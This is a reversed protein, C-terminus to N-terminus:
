YNTAATRRNEYGYPNVSTGIPGTHYGGTTGTYGTEPLPHQGNDTAALGGAVETDKGYAAHTTKPGRRRKFWKDGSGWTYNNAPSAGFRKDRQLHRSLWRQVFASILFLFAEKTFISKM